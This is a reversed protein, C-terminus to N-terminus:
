FPLTDLQRQTVTIEGDSRVDVSFNKLKLDLWGAATWNGLAATAGKGRLEHRGDKPKLTAEVPDFVVQRGQTGVLFVQGDTVVIEPLADLSAGTDAPRPPLVTLLRGEDDFRLTVVAGSMRILSPLSGGLLDTLPVDAEIRK